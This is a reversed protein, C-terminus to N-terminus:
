HVTFVAHVILGTTINYRLSQSSPDEPHHQRSAPTGAAHHPESQSAAFSDLGTFDIKIEM